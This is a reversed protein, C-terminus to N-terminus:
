KKPTKSGRKKTSPLAEDPEPEPEGEGDEYDTPADMPDDKEEESQAMLAEVKKPPIRDANLYEVITNMVEEFTHEPDDEPIHYEDFAPDHNVFAYIYKDKGDSNDVRRALLRPITVPLVDNGSDIHIKKDVTFPNCRDRVTAPQVGLLEVLDEETLYSKTNLFHRILDGDKLHKSSRQGFKKKESIALESAKTIDIPM